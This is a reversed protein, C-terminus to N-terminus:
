GPVELSRARTSMFTELRGVGTSFKVMEKSLDAVPPVILMSQSLVRAETAMALFYCNEARASRALSRNRACGRPARAFPQAVTKPKNTLAGASPRGHSKGTAEKRRRGCLACIRQHWRGGTSARDGHRGAGDHLVACPRAMDSHPLVDPLSSRSRGAGGPIRACARVEMAHSCVGRDSVGCLGGRRVM